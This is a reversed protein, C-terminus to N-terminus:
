FSATYFQEPGSAVYKDSSDYETFNHPVGCCPCGADTACEGTVRQWEDVAENLSLGRRTASQALAGLWRGNSDATVFSSKKEAVWDVEWGAAELARWQDDDLWWHGGSNNSDYEVYGM